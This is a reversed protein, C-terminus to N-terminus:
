PADDPRSEANVRMAAEIRTDFEADHAADSLAEIIAFHGRNARIWRYKDADTTPASTSTSWGTTAPNSYLHHLLRSRLDHGPGRASAPTTPSAHPSDPNM